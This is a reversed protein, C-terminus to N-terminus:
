RNGSYDYDLLNLPAFHYYSNLARRIASLSVGKVEQKVHVVKFSKLIASNVTRFIIKKRRPDKSGAVFLIFDEYTTLFSSLPEHLIDDITEVSILNTFISHIADIEDQNVKVNLIYIEQEFILVTLPHFGTTTYEM